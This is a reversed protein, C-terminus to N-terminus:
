MTSPSRSERSLPSYQREPPCTGTYDGAVRTADDRPTSPTIAEVQHHHDHHHDHHDDSSDRENDFYVM